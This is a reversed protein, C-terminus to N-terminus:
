AGEELFSELHLEEVLASAPVQAGYRNHRWGEPGSIAREPEGARCAAIAALAMPVFVTSIPPYHNSQLHWELAATESIQNQQVADAMGLASTRGM